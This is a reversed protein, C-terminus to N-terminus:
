DKCNHCKDNDRGVSRTSGALVLLVGALITYGRGTDTGGAMMLVGPGLKLLAHDLVLALALALAMELALTLLLM